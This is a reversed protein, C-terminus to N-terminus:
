GGWLSETFRCTRLVDCVPYWQGSFCSHLSAFFYVSLNYLTMSPTLSSAFMALLVVRSTSAIMPVLLTLHVIYCFIELWTINGSKLFVNLLHVM